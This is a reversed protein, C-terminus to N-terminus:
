QSASRRGARPLRHGREKRADPKDMEARGEARDVARRRTTRVLRAAPHLSTASLRARGKRIRCGAEGHLGESRDASIAYIAHRAQDWPRHRGGPPWIARGWASSLGKTAYVRAGHRHRTFATVEAPQFGADICAAQLQLPMGSVHPYSRTLLEDLRQWCEPETVDGNVVYYAISWSELDRGWAVIEMELRDAQVDVGATLLAAGAPVVGEPYPEARAMLTEAEPVELAPPAWCEGLACNM